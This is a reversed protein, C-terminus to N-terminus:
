AGFLILFMLQIFLASAILVGIILIFNAVGRYVSFPAAQKKIKYIDTPDDIMYYGIGADGEMADDVPNMRINVGLVSAQAGSQGIQDPPVGIDVLAQRVQNYARTNQVASIAEYQEKLKKQYANM